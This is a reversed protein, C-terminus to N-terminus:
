APTSQPCTMFFMDAHAIRCGTVGITSNTTNNKM